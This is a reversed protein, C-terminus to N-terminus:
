GEKGRKSEEEKMGEKRGGEVVRERGEM